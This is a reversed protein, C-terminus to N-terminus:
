RNEPQPLFIKLQDCSQYEQDIQLYFNKANKMFWNQLYHEKKEELARTALKSYDDKMNERHPETRSILYIM